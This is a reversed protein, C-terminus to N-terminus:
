PDMKGTRVGDIPMRLQSLRATVPARCTRAHLPFRIVFAGMRSKSLRQQRRIKCAGSEQACMTQPMSCSESLRCFGQAPVGLASNFKSSMNQFAILGTLEVIVDDDFHDKLRKVIDEEVQLDSLTVAEAYDLAARERLDLAIVADRKRM